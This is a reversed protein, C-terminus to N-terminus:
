HNSKALIWCLVSHAWWRFRWHINCAHRLHGNAIKPEARWRLKAAAAWAEACLDRRLNKPIAEWDLHKEFVRAAAEAMPASHTSLASTHKRYRCTIRGTYEIRAGARACRLWMDRDEVYRFSPDFKGAREWIERRFLVSSPQIVYHAKFLSLTLTRCDETSPARTELTKGTDSNFLVSGGHIFEAHSQKATEICVALHDPTWLDDSDLLSIWQARAATIGANRTAPLGRNPDHRGYSVTQPVTAAFATVIEETRDRSGDETVILEWDTFTQAKVSALTEGIFHEAKYAPICISILPDPM